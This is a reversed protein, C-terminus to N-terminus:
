KTTVLFDEIASDIKLKASDFIRLYLTVAESLNNLHCRFALNVKM